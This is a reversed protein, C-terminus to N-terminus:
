VHRVFTPKRVKQRIITSGKRYIPELKAYNIDFETFLIENKDKSFTGQVCTMNAM